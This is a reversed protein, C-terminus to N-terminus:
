DRIIWWCITLWCIAHLLLPIYGATSSSSSIIIVIMIYMPWNRYSLMYTWSLCLLGLLIRMCVCLRLCLILVFHRTTRSIYTICINTGQHSYLCKHLLNPQSSPHYPQSKRNLTTVQTLPTCQVGNFFRRTRKSSTTSISFFPVRNSLPSVCNIETREIQLNTVLSYYDADWIINWNSNLM